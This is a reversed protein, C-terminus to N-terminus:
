RMASTCRGTRCAVRLTVANAGSCAFAIAAILLTTKLKM